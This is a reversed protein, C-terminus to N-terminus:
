RPELCKRGELFLQMTSTADFSMMKFLENVNQDVSKTKMDKPKCHMACSGNTQTGHPFM